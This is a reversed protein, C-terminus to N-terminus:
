AFDSTAKNTNNRLQGSSYYAFGHLSDSFAKGKFNPLESMKFIGVIVNSRVSKSSHEKSSELKGTTVSM